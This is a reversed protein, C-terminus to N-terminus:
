NTDLDMIVPAHDSPTELGRFEKAVYGAKINKELAPTVWIHDLRRGRDSKQWDHNRYSWWSYLKESEPTFRRIADHWNLSKYLADMKEVEIPTHSVEKLLQKHSWVDHELPAINLDGLLILKDTEKRNEKFWKAIQDMFYLKHKFKLNMDPDPIEGGAPVYFNHIEIGDYLKVCVHRHEKETIINLSFSSQLPAKSLIAVGNYAKGGHLEIHKYGLDKIYKFPFENNTVKTEQLCLIDPKEQIAFREIHSLRVRVSNVNWTAIRM